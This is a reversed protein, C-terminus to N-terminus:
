TEKGDIELIVDGAKIGARDAPTGELPSVVAIQGDKNAGVVMGVGEFKGTTTERFQDFDKRSLYHTYPDNLAEVVGKVAGEILKQTSIEEVYNEKILHIAEGVKEVSPYSRSLQAQKEDELKYGTVLGASFVGALLLIAVLVSGLVAFLKKM